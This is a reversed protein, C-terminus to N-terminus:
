AKFAKFAKFAKHEQAQVEEEQHDKIVKHDALLVLLVQLDSL